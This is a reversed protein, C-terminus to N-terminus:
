PAHTDTASALRGLGDYQWTRVNGLADQFAIPRKLADYAYRTTIDRGDTHEVFTRLNGYADYTGQTVNLLADTIIESNPTYSKSTIGRADRQNM